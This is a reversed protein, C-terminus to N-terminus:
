LLLTYIGCRTYVSWCIFSVGFFIFFFLDTAKAKSKLSKDGSTCRLSFSDTEHKAIYSLRFPSFSLCGLFSFLFLLLFSFFVLFSIFVGHQLFASKFVSKRFGSSAMCELPQIISSAVSMAIKM